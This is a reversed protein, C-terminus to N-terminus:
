DTRITGSVPLSTPGPCWLLDKFTELTSFLRTKKSLSVLVTSLISSVFVGKTCMNSSHRKNNKLLLELLDEVVSNLVM